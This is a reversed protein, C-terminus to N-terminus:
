IRRYGKPGQPRLHIFLIVLHSTTESEAIGSEPVAWNVTILMSITTSTAKM